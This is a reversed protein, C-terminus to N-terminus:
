RSEGKLKEVLMDQVPFIQNLNKDLVKEYKFVPYVQGDSFCQVYTEVPPKHEPNKSNKIASDLRRVQECLLRTKPNNSLEEVEEKTLIKGVYNTEGHRVFSRMPTSGAAFIAKVDIRFFPLEGKHEKVYDMADKESKFTQQQHSQEYGFDNYHFKITDLDDDYHYLCPDSSVFYILNTDPYIKMMFDKIAEDM